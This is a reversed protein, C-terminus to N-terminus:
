LFVGSDVRNSVINFKSRVFKELNIGLREALLDAYIIVDALEMGVKYVLDAYRDDGPARDKMTQLRRIKKVLNLAEGAEGGMACAWDTPSWDKIPFFSEICRKKNAAHLREFTINM